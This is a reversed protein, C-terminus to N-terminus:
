WYRGRPRTAASGFPRCTISSRGTGTSSATTWWRALLLTSMGKTNSAVMFLTDKDVPAGTALEKVGIGGEFVIKGNDIVALGVGPIKLAAMSAQVFRKLEEIRGADMRHAQKGAFTEKVYDAPRLTDTSATFQGRRKTITAMAGEVTVVTWTTGRRLAVAQAIAKEAPPVEYDVVIAEDWGDRAPIRQALHVPWAFSPKALRWAQVAADSGDKAAAIPVIAVRLDQEPPTFRILGKDHAVSWGEPPVMVADSGVLISGAVRGAVPAQAVAACTAVPLAAIAIAAILAKM